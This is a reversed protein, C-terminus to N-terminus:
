RDLVFDGAIAQLPNRIDHGVMGATAGITALREANRLQKTREVVLRELNEQYQKLENEAKKLQSIDTVIGLIAKKGKYDILKTAILADIRKGERTVLAYEYPPIEEGKLHKAWALKVKEIYEPSSLTLFNFSPSYFEERSYGM